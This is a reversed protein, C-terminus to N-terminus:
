TREDPVLTGEREWRRLTSPTVGLFEAAERIGVLKREMSLNYM